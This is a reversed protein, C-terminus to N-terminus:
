HITLIKNYDFNIESLDDSLGVKSSGRFRFNNTNYILYKKLPESIDSATLELKKAANIYQKVDEMIELQKKNTSYLTFLEKSVDVTVTNGKIKIFDFLKYTKKQPASEEFVKLDPNLYSRGKCHEYFSHNRIYYSYEANLYGKYEHELKILETNTHGFLELYKEFVMGKTLDNKMKEAKHYDEFAKQFNGDKLDELSYKDAGQKKLENAAITLKEIVVNLGEKFRLHHEENYNLIQKM